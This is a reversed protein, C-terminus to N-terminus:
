LTELLGNIISQVERRIQKRSMTFFVGGDSQCEWRDRMLPKTISITQKRGDLYNPHPRQFVLGEFINHTLRYVLLRLTEKTAIRQQTQLEHCTSEAGENQSSLFTATSNTMARVHVDKAFDSPTYGRSRVRKM